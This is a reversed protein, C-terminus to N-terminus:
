TGVGQSWARARAVAASRLASLRTSSELLLGLVHVCPIRNFVEPRVFLQGVRVRLSELLEDRCKVPVFPAMRASKASGIAKSGGSSGTVRRAQRRIRRRRRFKAANILACSGIFPIWCKPSIITSSCRSLSPSTTLESDSEAAKRWHRLISARSKQLHAALADLQAEGDPTRKM